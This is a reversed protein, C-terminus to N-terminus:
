ITCFAPVGSGSLIYIYGCIFKIIARVLIAAAIGFSAYILAKKGAEKGEQGQSVIMRIAGYFFAVVAMPGIFFYVVNVLNTTMASVVSTASGCFLFGSCDWGTQASIDYSAHAIMPLLIGSLIPLSRKM